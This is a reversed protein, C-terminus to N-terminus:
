YLDKEELSNVDVINIHISDINQEASSVKYRSSHLSNYAKIIFLQSQMKVSYNLQLTCCISFLVYNCTQM